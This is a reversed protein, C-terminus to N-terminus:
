QFKWVIGQCVVLATNAGGGAGLNANYTPVNVSDTVFAIAGNIAAVCAPLTAVTLNPAIFATFAQQVFATSACLQTSTGLPPTLQCQPNQAYACGCFVFMWFLLLAAYKM